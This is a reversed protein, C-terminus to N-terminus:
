PKVLTLFCDVVQPDFQKGAQARLYDLTEENSWAARYPRDSRLADWVDVVAFIRAELPIQEGRLGLPYGSGDWREHHCLPITLAPKLYEIPSLMEYALDPHRQIIEREEASLEGPKFLIEDPVGLKGIDHLLAGRRLHILRSEDIQMARALGLALNTVRLTHGKTERDRLELARSWGEITADYAQVLQEHASQLNGFLGTNEVAIAAQDALTNFFDLWEQYPQLLSRQFVELVGKVRGKSILPMALYSVFGEQEVFAHFLPDNATEKLDAVRIM